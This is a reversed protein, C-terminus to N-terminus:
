CFPEVAIQANKHNRALIWNPRKIILFFGGGPGCISAPSILTRRRLRSTVLGNLCRVFPMEIVSARRTSNPRSAPPHNECVWRTDKCLACKM